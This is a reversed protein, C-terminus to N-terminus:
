QMRTRYEWTCNSIELQGGSLSRRKRLVSTPLNARCLVAGAPLIYEELSRKNASPLLLLRM